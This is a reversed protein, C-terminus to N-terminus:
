RRIPNKGGRMDAGCFPCYKYYTEVGYDGTKCNSCMYAGGDNAQLPNVFVWKGQPRPEIVSQLEAKLDEIAKEDADETFVTVQPLTDANDILALVGEFGCIAYRYPELAKKLADADIPRM